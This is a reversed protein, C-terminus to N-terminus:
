VNQRRGAYNVYYDELTEMQHADKKKVHDYGFVHLLGHCSLRLLRDALTGGSEEAQRRATPVSVYVEGFICEPADPQDINFALVDTARDVKRFERNLRRITQDDTFILNVTGRWGPKQEERSLKDFMLELKDKPPRAKTEQFVYLKM